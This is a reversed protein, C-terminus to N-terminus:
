HVTYPETLAFPAIEVEFNDGETTAMQYTGQMTGFPTSLPCGSTYEFSEGPALVPQKGVVGPGRVEQTENESTTIIWHRSVLQVTDGSENSIEITYLFFWQNQSPQSHEASYQSTVHVRIGRTVAESEYM